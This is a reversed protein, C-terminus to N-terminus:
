EEDPVETLEADAWLHELDYFTREEPLFIHVMVDSYDMAVWMANRMGNVAIPHAGTLARVKEGVSQALAQVQNPSGGTCVVFRRCITDPIQELNAVVIQRGKKDKLGEVIAEVLREITEKM